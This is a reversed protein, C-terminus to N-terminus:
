SVTLPETPEGSVDTKTSAMFLEEIGELPDDSLHFHIKRRGEGEESRKRSVTVIRLNELLEMHDMICSYSMDMEEALEEGTSAKKSLAQLIKMRTDCPSVLVMQGLKIVAFCGLRSKVETMELQTM